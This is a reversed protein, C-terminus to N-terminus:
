RNQQNTTQYIHCKLLYNLWSYLWNNSSCNSKSLILKMHRFLQKILKKNNLTFMENNCENRCTEKIALQIMLLIIQLM